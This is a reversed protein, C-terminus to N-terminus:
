LLHLDVHVQMHKGQQPLSTHVGDGHRNGPFPNWVLKKAVKGNTRAKM